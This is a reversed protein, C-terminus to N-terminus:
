ETTASDTTKDDLEALVLRFGITPSSDNRSVHYRCSSLCDSASSQWSGGRVCREYEEDEDGQPDIALAKSYFGDYGDFCWEAVNGHMDYLGWANPEFTKVTVTERRDPGQTSTGYPFVGACNAQVGNLASGFSFPTTTGARCAYEWEAETPLRFEMGDPANEANLISIFEQCENWSVNEVPRNAGRFRSQNDGTISKWLEQTVETELMWFGHTLKVKHQSSFSRHEEGKPSGMMFDGAPCYRFVYPSNKITVELADGAKRKNDGEDRKTDNQKVTPKLVLRLGIHSFSYNSKFRPIDKDRAASRLKSLYSYSYGGRMVRDAGSTPGTPDTVPGDPYPGYWDECWEAVNGHMDYLGWANPQKQKVDHIDCGSWGMWQIHGNGGYAADSGARCAYEWEAETPLSFAMGEPAFGGSNLENVFNWSDEWSAYAPHNIYHPGKQEVGTIAKWLTQTVEHELIWFGQTLTVEHQVEDDERGEEDEPSGMMFTGAPCYRFVYPTGKITVNLADGANAEQPIAEQQNTPVARMVIRLGCCDNDSGKEPDYSIRVASRCNKAPYYWSGGRGVRVTGNPAGQPDTVPNSPYDGYWDKCWEWVNGHMDYLGWANPNKGKVDHVNNRLFNHGNLEACWAMTAFDGTGGFAGTTGARCAYEWEAETPLDFFMGESAIGRDNLRSIFDVCDYWSVNHVPYNAGRFKSRNNGTITSWLAQTVETEMMWFGQTLTVEHQVENDYREKENEPSGMVFTGAPCYRFVCEIGEITVSRAEGAKPTVSTSQGDAPSVSANNSVVRRDERRAGDKVNSPDRKDNQVSSKQASSSPTANRSNTETVNRSPRSPASQKSTQSRLEDSGGRIVKTKSDFAKDDVTEVSAPLVVTTLPCSIFAQYGIYTLGEPLDISALSDCDHFANDEIITLGESFTVSALSRCLFFTGEQIKGLSGPLVVSQLSDCASFSSKGVNLVGNPITISELSECSSFASSGIDLLGEQLSVSKLSKCGSFASDEITTVNEQLAIETLSDCDCFAWKGIEELSEPFNISSLSECLRFADEGIKVIGEPLVVSRLSSCYEFTGEGIEMSDIGLKPIIISKLSRCDEFAGKGIETLGEPLTISTLSNCNHFAGEGIETLGNPLSVSRLKRCSDFADSGIKTIGDPMDISTLDSCTHFTAREIKTLGKPLILSQLGCEKFAGSGIKTLTKPLNISTLKRCGYFAGGEIETIGEPLNVSKLSSCCYFAGQGIIGDNEGDEREGINSIQKSLDVISLSNCYKFASERIAILSKPLVVKTLSMCSNFASKGIIKMGDPFTVSKLTKNELFAEDGIEYVQLEKVGSTITKPIVLDTVKGDVGTIKVGDACPEWQFEVDAASAVSIFTM